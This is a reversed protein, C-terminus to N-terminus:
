QFLRTKLHPNLIIIPSAAINSCRSKFLNRHIGKKSKPEYGVDVDGRDLIFLGGTSMTRSGGWTVTDILVLDMASYVISRQCLFVFVM